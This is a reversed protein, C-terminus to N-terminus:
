SFSPRTILVKMDWTLSHTLLHTPPHTTSYTPPHTTSYTPPHTLPQTPPHTLPDTHSYFPTWFLYVLVMKLLETRIQLMDYKAPSSNPIHHNYNIIIKIQCNLIVNTSINQVQECIVLSTNHVINQVYAKCPCSIVILPWPVCVLDKWTHVRVRYDIFM